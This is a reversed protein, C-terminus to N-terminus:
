RCTFIQIVWENFTRAEREGISDGDAAMAVTASFLAASTTAIVGATKLKRSIKM